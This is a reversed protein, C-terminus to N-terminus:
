QLLSLIGFIRLSVIRLFDPINGPDRLTNCLILLLPDSVENGDKLSSCKMVERKNYKGGRATLSQKRRSMENTDLVWNTEQKEHVHACWRKPGSCITVDAKPSKKRSKEGYEQPTRCNGSRKHYLLAFNM